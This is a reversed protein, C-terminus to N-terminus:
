GCREGLGRYTRNGLRVRAYGFVTSEKLLFRWGSNTYTHLNLQTSRYFFFFRDTYALFVSKKIM